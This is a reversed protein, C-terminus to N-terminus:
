DILSIRIGVDSVGALSDCDMVHSMRIMLTDNSVPPFAYLDSSQQYLLGATTGLRRGDDGYIACLLTDAFLLSDALSYVGVSIELDKYEYDATTRVEAAINCVESNMVAGDCVFCVTDNRYWVCGEVASYNHFLTGTCATLLMVSLLLCLNVRLRRMGGRIASVM